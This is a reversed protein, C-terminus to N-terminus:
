YHRVTMSYNVPETLTSPAAPRGPPVTTIEVCYAGASAGNPAFLEQGLTATATQVQLSCTANSVTGFGVGITIGTVSTGDAVTKLSDVSVSLDTTSSTTAVSFTKFDLGLPQLTGTFTETQLVPDPATASGCGSSSLLLVALGLPALRAAAHPLM